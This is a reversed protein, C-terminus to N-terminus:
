SDRYNVKTIYNVSPGNTSLNNQDSTMFLYIGGQTASGGFQVRQVCRRKSALRGINLEFKLMRENMLGDAYDTNTSLSFSKDWLVRFQRRTDHAYPELYDHYAGGGSLLSSATPTTDDLWQFVIARFRTINGSAAAVLMRGQLYTVDISDGIRQTDGTGAGPNTLLIMSYSDYSVHTVTNSIVNYKKEQRQRIMKNVDSKTAYKTRGRKVTSPGAMSGSRTRKAM